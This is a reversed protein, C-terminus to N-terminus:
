ARAANKRAIRYQRAGIARKLSRASQKAPNTYTGRGWAWVLTIARASRRSSQQRTRYTAMSEGELREPTHVNPQM